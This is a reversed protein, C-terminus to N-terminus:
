NYFFKAGAKSAATEVPPEEKFLFVAAIRSGKRVASVGHLVNGGDFLYLMGRTPEHFVTPAAGAINRGPLLPDYERLIQAVETVQARSVKPFTIREGGEDADSIGIVGTVGKPQAGALGPGGRISSDISDFHFGLATRTNPRAQMVNIALGLDSFYPFLDQCGMVGTLFRRLHPSHYIWQIPSDAPIHRSPVATMNVDTELLKRPDGDRMELVEGPPYTPRPDGYRRKGLREVGSGFAALGDLCEERLLPVNIEGDREYVKRYEDPSRAYFDDRIYAGLHRRYLRLFEAEAVTGRRLQSEVRHRAEWSDLARFRRWAGDPDASFQAAIGDAGSSACVHRLVVGVRRHERRRM